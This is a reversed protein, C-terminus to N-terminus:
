LQRRLHPQTRLQACPAHLAAAGQRRKSRHPRSRLARADFKPDLEAGAQRYIERAEPLLVTVGIEELVQLSGTHIAEIQDASLPTAPGYPNRLQRWPLQAIAGTSESRRRRASSQARGAREM